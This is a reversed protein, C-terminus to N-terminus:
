TKRRERSVCRTATTALRGGHGLVVVEVIGDVDSHDLGRGAPGRTAAFAGEVLAHGGWLRSQGGQGRDAAAVARQGGIIRIELHWREHRVRYEVFIRVIFDLGERRVTVLLFLLYFVTDITLHQLHSPRLNPLPLPRFLSQKLAPIRPEEIKTPLHFLKANVSTSSLQKKNKQM